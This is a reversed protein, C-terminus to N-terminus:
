WKLGSGFKRLCKGIFHKVTYRLGNERLCKVGGWAKRAPWTVFMGVRYAESHRLAGIERSARQIRRSWEDRQKELGDALLPRMAVSDLFRDARDDDMKVPLKATLLKRKLAERSYVHPVTRIVM